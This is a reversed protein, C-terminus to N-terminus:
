FKEFDSWQSENGNGKSVILWLESAKADSSTERHNWQGRQGISSRMILEKGTEKRITPESEM